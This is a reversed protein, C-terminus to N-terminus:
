YHRFTNEMNRNKSAWMNRFQLLLNEISILLFYLGRKLTKVFLLKLQRNRRQTTSRKRNRAKVPRKKELDTESPLKLDMFEEPETNGFLLRSLFDTFQLEYYKLKELINMKHLKMHSLEIYM